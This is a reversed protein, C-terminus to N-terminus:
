VWEVEQKALTFAIMGKGYQIVLKKIAVLDAVQETTLETSM